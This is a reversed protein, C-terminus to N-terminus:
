AAAEDDHEAPRQNGTRRVKIHAFPERLTYRRQETVGTPSLPARKHTVHVSLLETDVLERVGRRITDRSIGYWRGGHEQPLIFTNPLSLAILLVATGALDLQSSWGDLWYSHPLKLYDFRGPGGGHAYPKGTGGDDLLYIRRLSGDRESRILQLQELWNWTKSIFVASANDPM